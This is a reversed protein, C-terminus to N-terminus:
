NSLNRVFEKVLFPKNGISLTMTTANSRMLNM